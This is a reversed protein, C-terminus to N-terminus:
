GALWWALAVDLFLGSAFGGSILAAAPLWTYEDRYHDHYEERLAAPTPRRYTM